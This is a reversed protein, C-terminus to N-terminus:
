PCSITKIETVYLSTVSVLLLVLSVQVVSPPAALKKGCHGYLSKVTSLCGAASESPSPLGPALPGPYARSFHGLTGPGIERSSLPACPLPKAPAPERGAGRSDNALIGVQQFRDVEGSPM